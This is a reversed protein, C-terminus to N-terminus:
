FLKGLRISPGKPECRHDELDALVELAATASDVYQGRCDTEPTSGDQGSIIAVLTKVGALAGVLESAIEATM